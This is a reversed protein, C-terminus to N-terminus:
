AGWPFRSSPDEDWEDWNDQTMLKDNGEDVIGDPSFYSRKNPKVCRVPVSVSYVTGDGGDSTMSLNIDQQSNIDVYDELAQVINSKMDEMVDESLSNRDAVLIMRLRSKGADRASLNALSKKRLPFFIRWAKEMKRLLGRNEGGVGEEEEEDFYPPPGPSVSSRTRIRSNLRLEYDDVGSDSQRARAREARRLDFYDRDGDSRSRCVVVSQSKVKKGLAAQSTSSSSSKAGASSCTSSYGGLKIMTKMM